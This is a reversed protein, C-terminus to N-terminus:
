SHFSYFHRSFGTGTEDVKADGEFIAKGTVRGPQNGLDVVHVVQGARLLHCTKKTGTEGSFLQGTTQAPGCLVDTERRVGTRMEIGRVVVSGRHIMTFAGQGDIFDREFPTKLVAYDQVEAGFSVSFDDRDTVDLFLDVSDLIFYLGQIDNKDLRTGVSGPPCLFVQSLTRAHGSLAHQIECSNAYFDHPYVGPAEVPGHLGLCPIERLGTIGSDYPLSVEGSPVANVAVHLFQSVEAADATRMAEGHATKGDLDFLALAPHTLGTAM